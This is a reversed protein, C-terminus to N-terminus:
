EVLPATRFFSRGNYEFCCDEIMKIAGKLHYLNDGIDEMNSAIAELAEVLRLMESKQEPESM